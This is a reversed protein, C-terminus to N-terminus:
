CYIVSFNPNITRKRNADPDELVCSSNNFKSLASGTRHAGHQIADGHSHKYKQPFWLSAPKRPLAYSRTHGHRVGMDCPKGYMVISPRASALILCYFILCCWTLVLLKRSCVLLSIFYLSLKIKVHSSFICIICM